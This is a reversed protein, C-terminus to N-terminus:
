DIVRKIGRVVKDLQQDYRADTPDFSNIVTRKYKGSAHIYDKENLAMGVHTVRESGFFILDGKQMQERAVAHTLADHQQDADRPIIYGGMRYCLQVFASCDIGKWSVGGWLYPVGQFPLAYAIIADISQCPYCDEGYRISVADRSIWGTQEGPLAVKVRESPVTDLLPLVSSLYLTDLVENGALDAFLPTHTAQVIAVLALPTSCCDSIRTFGKIPADELVDTQVWGQYDSFEVYTWDGSTENAKAPRNMLAQTVLESTADPDRRVDAVGVSIASITM